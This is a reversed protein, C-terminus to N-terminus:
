VINIYKTFVSLKNNDSLAINKPQFHVTNCYMKVHEQIEFKFFYKGLNRMKVCKACSITTTYINNM